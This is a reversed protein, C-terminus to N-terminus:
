TVALGCAGGAPDIVAAPLGLYQLTDYGAGKEKIAVSIGRVTGFSPRLQWASRMESRQLQQKLARGQQFGRYLSLHLNRRYESNIMTKLPPDLAQALTQVFTAVAQQAAESLSLYLGADWPQPKALQLELPLMPVECKRISDVEDETLHALTVHRTGDKMFCHAHVVPDCLSALDGLFAEHKSDGAHDVMLLLHYERQAKRKAGRPAATSSGGSIEAPSAHSLLGVASPLPRAIGPTGLTSRPVALAAPAAASPTAHDHATLSAPLPRGLGLDTGHVHAACPRPYWVTARCLRCVPM